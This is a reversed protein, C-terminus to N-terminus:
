LYLKLTYVCILLISYFLKFLIVSSAKTLEEAMRAAVIKEEGPKMMWSTIIVSNDKGGIMEISPNGNRLKDQFDNM